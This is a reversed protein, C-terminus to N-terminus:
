SVAKKRDTDKGIAITLGIFVYMITLQPNGVSIHTTIDVLEGIICCFVPLPILRKWKELEKNRILKVAYILFYIIFGVYLLVGPLGNEMLIQMIMNHMHNVPGGNSEKRVDNILEMPFGVGKGWLLIEPEKQIVKFASEWTLTRSNLSLTEEIDSSFDRAAIEQPGNEAYAVSILLSGKEKQNAFTRILLPQLATLGVTLVALLGLVAIRKGIALAPTKSKNKTFLDYVPLCIMASIAFASIVYATRTATLISGIWIILAAVIFAGKGIKNKVTMMGAFAVALSISAYIGSIVPHYILMLREAWIQIAQNGLTHVPNGTWASYIGIGIFVTSAVTWAACFALAFHKRTKESFAFGVSYCGFFAYIGLLFAPIRRYTTIYDTFAVRCWFLLLYAGLIWFGKDKWTKGLVIGLAAFVYWWIEFTKAGTEGAKLFVIDYINHLLMAIFFVIFIINYVTRRSDPEILHNDIHEVLRNGKQSEKLARFLGAACLLVAFILLIRGLQPSYPKRTEVAIGESIVLSSLEITEKPVIRIACWDDAVLDFKFETMDKRAAEELRRNWPDEGTKSIYLEIAINKKLPEKFYLIVSQTKGLHVDFDGDAGGEVTRTEGEHILQEKTGEQRFSVAGYSSYWMCVDALISCLLIAAIFALVKYTRNKRDNQKM